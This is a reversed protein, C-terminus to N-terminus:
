SVQLLKHQGTPNSRRTKQRRYENLAVTTTGKDAKKVNIGNDRKLAKLATREAPTLNNKPKTLKLDALESKVEELYSELAVSQQIPPKWTSKVHFPHPENGQGHFIYMLRMRRAYQDFDRM